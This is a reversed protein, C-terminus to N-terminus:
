AQAACPRERRQREDSADSRAPARQADASAVAIVWVTAHLKGRGRLAGEGAVVRGPRVGVDDGRDDGGVLAVGQGVAGIVPGGLAASTEGLQEAAALRQEREGAGAAVHEAQRRQQSRHVGDHASGARVDVGVLRPRHLADGTGLQDVERRGVALEDGLLQAVEADNSPLSCWTWGATTVIVWLVSSPM